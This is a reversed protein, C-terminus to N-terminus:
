SFNWIVRINDAWHMMDFDSGSLRFGDRQSGNHMTKGQERLTVRNALHGVIDVMDRRYAVQQPTGIKHCLGVYVSLSREQDAFM